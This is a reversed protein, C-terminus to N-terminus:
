DKHSDVFYVSLSSLFLLSMKILKSFFVCSCSHVRYIKFSLNTPMTVVSEQIQNYFLLDKFLWVSIAIKNKDLNLDSLM